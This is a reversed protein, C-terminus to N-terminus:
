GRVDTHRGPTSELSTIHTACAQSLPCAGPRTHSPPHAAPPTVPTPQAAPQPTPRGAGTHARPTDAGLTQIDGRRPNSRQRTHPAPMHPLIPAPDHTAIHTPPPRHPPPPNPPRSTPPGARVQTLVHHPLGLCGRAAGAHIRASAPTHCLCTHSSPRRTTHSSTPPRRLSSGARKRVRPLTQKPSPKSGSKRGGGGKGSSCNDRIIHM